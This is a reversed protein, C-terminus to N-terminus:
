VRQGISLFVLERLLIVTADGVLFGLFLPLAIRHARLGGYRLLIAKAAWAIVISPLMADM